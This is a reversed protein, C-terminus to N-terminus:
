AVEAIPWAAHPAVGQKRRVVKGARHVVSVLQNATQAKTGVSWHSAAWCRHVWVQLGDAAEGVVVM